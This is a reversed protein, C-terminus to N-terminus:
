SAVRRSTLKEQAKYPSHSSEFPSSFYYAVAGLEEIDKRLHARAKHFKIFNFMSKQYQAIEPGVAFKAYREIKEELEELELRTFSQDVLDKKTVAADMDVYATVFDTLIPEMAACDEEPMHQTLRDTLAALFPIVQTVQRLHKGQLM